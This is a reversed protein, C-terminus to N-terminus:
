AGPAWSAGAGVAGAREYTARMTRLTRDIDRESWGGSRERELRMTDAGRTLFLVPQRLGARTVEATQEDDM